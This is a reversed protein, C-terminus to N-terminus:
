NSDSKIALIEDPIRYTYHFGDGILTLSDLSNDFQIRNFTSDLNHLPMNAAMKGQRSLVIGTTVYPEISTFQLMEESTEISGLGQFMKVFWESIKGWEEISFNMIAGDDMSTYINERQLLRSAGGVLPINMAESM